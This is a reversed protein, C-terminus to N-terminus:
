NSVKDDLYEGDKYYQIYRLKGKNDWWTWKGDQKGNKYSGEVKKGGNKWIEKYGGEKITDVYNTILIFEGKKDYDYLTYKTIGNKIFVEQEILGNELYYINKGDCCDGECQGDFFEELQLKGNEYWHIRKNIYHGKSFFAEHKKNGNEYYFHWNGEREGNLMKGYTGLKGNEFFFERTYTLSDQINDYTNVVKKKGNDWKSIIKTKQGHNCSFIILMIIVWFMRKM